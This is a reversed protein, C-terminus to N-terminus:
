AETHFQQSSLAAIESWRSATIWALRAVVREKWDTRSRICEEAGKKTSPRAAVKQLRLAAMDLPTRDMELMLRMRAHQPRTLPAADSVSMLFTVCSEESIRQEHTRYFTALRRARGGGTGQGFRFRRHKTSGCDLTAQPYAGKRKEVIADPLKFTRIFRRRRPATRITSRILSGGGAKMPLPRGRQRTKVAMRAALLNKQTRRPRQMHVGRTWLPLVVADRCNNREEGKRSFSPQGRM